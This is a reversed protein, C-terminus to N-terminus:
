LLSSRTSIQPLSSFTLSRVPRKLPNRCSPIRQEGFYTQDMEPRADIYHCQSLVDFLRSELIRESGYRSQAIRVLLAAKAEFM